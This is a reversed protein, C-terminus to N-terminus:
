QPPKRHQVMERESDRELSEAATILLHAKFEGDPLSQIQAITAEPWIRLAASLFGPINEGERRLATAADPDLEAVKQILRQAASFGERIASEMEPTHPTTGDPANNLVFESEGIKQLLAHAAPDSQWTNQAPARQGGTSPSDALTRVSGVKKDVSEALIPDIEQLLHQGSEYLMKAAHPKIKEDGNIAATAVKTLQDAFDTAAQHMMWSSPCGSFSGSRLLTMFQFDTRLNTSSKKFFTLGQQVVQNCLDVQAESFHATSRTEGPPRNGDSFLITTALYPYAGTDGLRSAAAMLEPFAKTGKFHVVGEFVLRAMSAREDSQADTIDVEQLMALSTMPYHVSMARAAVTQLHARLDGTPLQDRAVQFLEKCWAKELYELDEAANCQKELLIARSTVDLATAAAYSEKLLQIRKSDIKPLTKDNEFAPKAPTAAASKQASPATVQQAHATFSGCVVLVMMRVFSGRPMHRIM